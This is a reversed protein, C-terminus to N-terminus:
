LRRLAEIASTTGKRRNLVSIADEVEIGSYGKSEMMSKATEYLTGDTDFPQSPIHSMGPSLNPMSDSALGFLGDRLSRIQKNDAAMLRALVVLTDFAGDPQANAGSYAGDLTENVVSAVSGFVAHMLQVDSLFQLAGSRQIEPITGHADTAIEVFKEELRHGINNAIAAAVNDILPRQQVVALGGSSHALCLSDLISLLVSVPRELDKSPPMDIADAQDQDGTSLVINSDGMLRHPATMFYGALGLREMLITEVFTSSYEDVMADRLRRMSQSLRLMDHDQGGPTAPFPTNHIAVAPAPASTQTSWPTFRTAAPTMKTSGPPGPTSPPVPLNGLVAAPMATAELACIALDMGCILDLWRLLNSKLATVDLDTTRRGAAQLMGDRFASAADHMIDMFCTTLPVAMGAVYRKKLAHSANLAVSSKSLISAIHAAYTEALPSPPTAASPSACSSTPLVACERLANLGCRLDVEIWLDLLPPNDSVLKATAGVGGGGGRGHMMNSAGGGHLSLGSRETEATLIDQAFTDYRLCQEVGDILAKAGAEAPRRSSLHRVYGRCRLIHMVLTSVEALLYSMVFEACSSPSALPHHHYQHYSSQTELPSLQAFQEVESQIVPLLGDVLVGIMGCDENAGRSGGITNSERGDEEEGTLANQVYRFLWRPLETLNASTMRVAAAAASGSEEAGNGEDSNRNSSSSNNGSGSKEDVFHFEVRKVLPRILEDVVDLRTVAVMQRQQQHHHQQQYDHNNADMGGEELSRLHGMLADHHLQVRILLTAANAFDAVIEEGGEWEPAVSQELADRLIRCASPAPYGSGAGGPGGAASVCTRVSRRLELVLKSRVRRHLPRYGELLIRTYPPNSTPDHRTRKSRRPPPVPSHHLLIRALATLSAVEHNIPSSAATSGDGGTTDYQRLYQAYESALTLESVQRQLIPVRQAPPISALTWSTSSPPPRVGTTTSDAAAAADADAAAADAAARRQRSREIILSAAEVQELQDALFTSSVGAAMAETPLTQPLAHHGGGGGGTSRGTPGTSTM